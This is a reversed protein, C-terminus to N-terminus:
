FGGKLGVSVDGQGLSVQPLIEPENGFILFAGTTLAGAMAIGLTVRALSQFGEGNTRLTIPQGAEIRGYDNQAVWYSAASGAGALVAVGAPIWWLKRINVPAAKVPLVGSKLLLPNALVEAVEDFSDLLKKESDGELKASSVVSGDVPSLFKALGRLSGDDFRALNVTMTADCGLANALETYCSTASDSCGLLQKQRELGLITQIDQATMVSLGKKRLADALSDAMLAAVEPKVNSVNWEPSVVKPEAGLALALTIAILM